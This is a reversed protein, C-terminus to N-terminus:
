VPCEKGVRREESRLAAVWARWARVQPWDATRWLDDDPQQATADVLAGVDQAARAANDQMERWAWRVRHAVTELLGDKADNFTRGALAPAAVDGIADHLLGGLTDLVGTRWTYFLPYIGNAAFYPGMVRIRRLSASEPNLGGHAYIVVKKSGGSGNAGSSRFLM